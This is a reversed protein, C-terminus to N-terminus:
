LEGFTRDANRFEIKKAFFLTQDMSNEVCKPPLFGLKLISRVAGTNSLMKYHLPVRLTLQSSHSPPCGIVQLVLGLTQVRIQLM